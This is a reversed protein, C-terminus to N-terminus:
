RNVSYNNVIVKDIDSETVRIGWEYKNNQYHYVTIDPFQNTHMHQGLYFAFPVSTALVLHIREISYNKCCNRVADLVTQTYSKIKDYSSFFDYGRDQKDIIVELTHMNGNYDISRLDEPKILYTTSIAVILEKSGSQVNQELYEDGILLQWIAARDNDHEPLEKFELEDGTPRFRHLLRIQRGEGFQYGLRFIFPIHAVGYYFITPSKKSIKMNKYMNDQNILAQVISEENEITTEINIRKFYYSKQFEDDFEELSHGMTSHKILYAIPRYIKKFLWTVITLVTLGTIIAKGITSSLADNLGPLVAIITNYWDASIAPVKQLFDNGRFSVVFACVLITSWTILFKDPITKCIKYIKSLM